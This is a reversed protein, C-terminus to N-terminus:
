IGMGQGQKWRGCIAQPHQLETALEWSLWSMEWYMKVQNNPHSQLTRDKFRGARRLEKM